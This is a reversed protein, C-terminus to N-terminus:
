GKPKPSYMESLLAEEEPTPPPAPGKEPLAWPYFTMPDITDSAREVCTNRLQALVAFTRSWAAQDRAEAM